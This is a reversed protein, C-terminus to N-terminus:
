KLQTDDDQTDNLSLTMMRLTMTRLTMKNHTIISLTTINFIIKSLTMISFTAISLTLIRFTLISLTKQIDDNILVAFSVLTSRETRCAGHRLLVLKNRWFM